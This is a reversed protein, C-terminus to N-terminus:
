QWAPMFRFADILVLADETEHTQVTITTQGNAEFHQVTVGDTEPINIPMVSYGPFTDFKQGVSVGILNSDFVFFRSPSSAVSCPEPEM